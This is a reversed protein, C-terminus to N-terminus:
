KCLSLSHLPFFFHAPIDAFKRGPKLNVPQPMFTIYLLYRYLMKYIDSDELINGSLNLQAKEPDLGYQEFALLTFYLVDSASGYDFTNCFLLRDKEFIALYFSTEYFHAFANHEKGNPLNAKAGLLFATLGNYFKANPFHHALASGLAPAIPYVLRLSMSEIEDDHVPASQKELSLEDLYVTRESPNFLRSPVLATKPSVVGIKVRRYLLGLLNEKKLAEGFDKQHGTEPWDVSKLVLLEETNTDFVSFVLSDMGTLISLQYASSNKQQFNNDIIDYKM